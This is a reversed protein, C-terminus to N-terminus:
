WLLTLMGGIVVSRMSGMPEWVSIQHKTPINKWEMLSVVEGTESVSLSVCNNDNHMTMLTFALATCIALQIQYSTTWVSVWPLPLVNPDKAM